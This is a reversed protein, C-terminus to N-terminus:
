ESQKSNLETEIKACMDVPFSTLLSHYLLIYNGQGERKKILYSNFDSASVTKTLPVKTDLDHLQTTIRVMLLYQLGDYPRHTESIWM